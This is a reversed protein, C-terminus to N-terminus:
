WYRPLTAIPTGPANSGLNPNWIFSFFDVFLAMTSSTPASTNDNGFIAVPLVAPYGSVTGMVSASNVNANVLDWQIFNNTEGSSGLRTVTWTGNIPSNAGTFGGVTIKSGASFPSAPNNPSTGVAWEILAQNGNISGSLSTLTQSFKPVTATLTNSSSGDLTMTISGSKSCSIDLRHWTGQTPAINTIKITGQVNNRASSVFAYNYVVELTFFSDNISPSTTSTDYRVGFFINPRSINGAVYSEVTPGALGVYISKKTTQFTTTAQNRPAEVKFIWTLQWGPSDFLPWYPEASVQNTGQFVNPILLGTNGVISANEWWISGLHPPPGGASMGNNNITGLLDWGLGISGSTASSTVAGSTVQFFDDRMMIYSPDSFTPSSGHTLGDGSTINVQGPGPGYTVATGSLNLISQDPNKVGNVELTTSAGAAQIIVQSQAQAGSAIKAQSPLPSIRSQSVGPRYFNRQWDPIQGLVDPVPAISTPNYGPASPRALPPPPVLAPPAVPALASM